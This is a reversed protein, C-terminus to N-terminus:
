AAFSREGLTFCRNWYLSKNKLQSLFPMLISGKYEHIFDDNLGEVILIVINPNDTFDNFYKGLENEREVVYVLPYEKNIFDKHPYLKSFEIAESSASQAESSLFIISKGIFYFGKNLSFKDSRTESNSDILFFLPISV